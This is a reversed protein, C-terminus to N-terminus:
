NIEKVHAPTLAECMDYSHTTIIYQHQPAWNQLDRIIQYQWDPHLNADLDDMLVVGPTFNSYQYHISNTSFYEPITLVSKIVEKKLIGYGKTNIHTHDTYEFINRDKKGFSNFLPQEPYPNRFFIIKQMHDRTYQENGNYGKIYREIIEIKIDGKNLSVRITNGTDEEYILEMDFPFNKIPYYEPFSVSRILSFLSHLFFSKGSGNYGGILFIRPFFDKEFEVYSKGVKFSHIHM